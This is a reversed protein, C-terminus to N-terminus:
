EPPPGSHSVDDRIWPRSKDRTKGYKDEGPFEIPGYNLNWAAREEMGPPPLRYPLPLVRQKADNSLEIAGNKSYVGKISGGVVPLVLFGMEYSKIRFTNKNTMEGWAAKSLNHSGTYAWLAEVTSLSSSSAAYKVLTKIHPVSAARGSPTADYSRLHPVLLSRNVNYTTIPVSGGGAWGELSDRIMTYSPLVLEFIATSKQWPTAGVRMEEVQPEDEETDEGTLDVMSSSPQSPSFYKTIPVGARNRKVGTMSSIPPVGPM